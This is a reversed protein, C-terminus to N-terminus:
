MAPAASLRRGTRRTEHRTRHKDSYPPGRQQYHYRDKRTLSRLENVNIESGGDFGEDLRDSRRTITENDTAAANNAANLM